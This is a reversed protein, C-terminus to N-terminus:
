YGYRSTNTAYPTGSGAAASFLDPSGFLNLVTGLRALQRDAESQQIQAQLQQQNLALSRQQNQLNEDLAAQGAIQGGLANQRLEADNTIGVRAGAQNRITDRSIAAQGVDSLGGGSVGRSSQSERLAKRENEANDRIAIDSARGLAEANGGNEFKNLQAENVRNITPNPTSTNTLPTAPTAPSSVSPPATAGFAKFIASFDVGQQGGGVPTSRQVVPSISPAASTPRPAAAPASPAVPAAYTRQGIGSAGSSLGSYPSYGTSTGRSSPAASSSGLGAM